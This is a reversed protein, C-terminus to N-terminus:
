FTSIFPINVINKSYDSGDDTIIVEIYYGDSQSKIEDLTQIFSKYSEKANSTFYHSIIITLDINSM